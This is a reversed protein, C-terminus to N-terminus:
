FDMKRRPAEVEELLTSLGTSRTEKKLVAKPWRGGLALEFLDNMRVIQACDAAILSAFEASAFEKKTYSRWVFFGQLRLWDMKPHNADFGRPVRSSIREDSFGGPFRSSFAKSAFLKEFPTANEAIAERLARVQRSSAMYLGGALLVEDGEEDGPHLMFYLNPNHDFRSESPRSASYSLYDKFPAGYELARNASRKMRGIGKQPFHYGPAVSALSSKLTKALHKLPLLIHKEYDERNKDLWEPRKQRSARNIFELSHKSFRPTLTAPM